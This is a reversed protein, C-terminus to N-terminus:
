ARYVCPEYKAVPSLKFENKSHKDKIIADVKADGCTDNCIFADLQEYTFGLNDEDTKGCLGDSPTKNVFKSPLGLYHGIACVESKTFNGLPAVDGDGDGGITFYGVYDESYNCTNIMRGNECQCIARIMKTRERPAINQRCQETIEINCDQLQKFSAELTSKINVTYNRIGLLKCVEISDNIDSQEGDPLMVGIVRDVGLAKVCLAAAITSDKGGSIGLVANCDKGNEDFWDRIWKILAETNKAVDFNYMNIGEKVCKIPKWREGVNGKIMGCYVPLTPHLTSYWSLAMDEVYENTEFDGQYFYIGTSDMFGRIIDNFQSESFLGSKVLWDYHSLGDYCTHLKDDFIAFAVRQNHFEQETM